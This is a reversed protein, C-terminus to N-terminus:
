RFHKQNKKIYALTQTILHKEVEAYYKEDETEFDIGKQEMADLRDQLREMSVPLKKRPFKAQICDLLTTMETALIKECASYVKSFHNGCYYLYHGFGGSNVETCLEDIYFVTREWQNLCNLAAGGASMEGLHESLASLIDEEPLQFIERIPM